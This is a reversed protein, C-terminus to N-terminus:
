KNGLPAQDAPNPMAMQRKEEYSRMEDVLGIAFTRDSDSLNFLDVSLTLTVKGGSSLDITRTNSHQSEAPPTAPNPQTKQSGSPQRVSPSSSGAKVNKARPKKNRAQKAIQSAMPLEAARAANVLFSFSKRRTADTAGLDDLKDYVMKPTSRMLNDILDTGYASRLIGQMLQKREQVDASVLRELKETPVDGNLLGIFRLGVILQSGTGGNFKPGWLSRDIQTPIVEMAGIWDLFNTFTSYSTYIPRSVKDTVM